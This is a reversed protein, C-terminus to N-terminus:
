ANFTTSIYGTFQIFAKVQRAHPAGGELGIKRKGVKNIRDKTIDQWKCKTDECKRQKRTDGPIWIGMLDHQLSALSM